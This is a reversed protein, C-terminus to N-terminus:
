ARQPFAIVNAADAGTLWKAYAEMAPRRVDTASGRVYARQVATLAHALAMEVLHPAIGGLETGWDAFISRWSHATGFDVGVTDVCRTFTTHSVPGGGLGPFVFGSTGHIAAQRLLIELALESLPVAHARNGKTREAAITVVRAGLDVESWPTNPAEAPRLACSAM